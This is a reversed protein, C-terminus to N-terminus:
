IEKIKTKEKGKVQIDIFRAPYADTLHLFISGTVMDGSYYFPKDTQVYISGYECSSKEKSYGEGM